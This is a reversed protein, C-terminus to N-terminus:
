KTINKYTAEEPKWTSKGKFRLIIREATATQLTLLADHVHLTYKPDEQKMPFYLVKGVISKYKVQTKEITIDPKLNMTWTTKPEDGYTKHTFAVALVAISLILAIGWIKKVKCSFEETGTIGILAIFLCILALWFM